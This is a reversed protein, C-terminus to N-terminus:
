PEDDRRTTRLRPEIFTMRATHGRPLSRAERRVRSQHNGRTAPHHGISRGAMVHLVWEVDQSTNTALEPPRLGPVEAGYRRAAEATEEEDTSVVVAEFVGSERAGAIAYAILPHGALQILNKGPVRESGARAPILAVASPVSFREFPLAGRM